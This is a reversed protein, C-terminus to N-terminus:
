PPTGSSDRRRPRPWRYPLLSLLWERRHQRRHQPTRTTRAIHRPALRAESLFLPVILARTHKTKTSAIANSRRSSSCIIIILVYCQTRFFQCLTHIWCRSNDSYLTCAMVRFCMIILTLRIADTKGTEYMMAKHRHVSVRPDLTRRDPMKGLCRWGRSNTRCGTTNRSCDRSLDPLRRVRRPVRPHQHHTAQLHMRRRSTIRHKRTSARLPAKQRARIGCTKYKRGPTATNLVLLLPQLRKRAQICPIRPPCM